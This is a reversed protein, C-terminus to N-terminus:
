GKKLLDEIVSNIFDKKFTLDIGFFAGLQNRIQKKTIKMLDATELILKIQAVIQEDSPGVVSGSIPYNVGSPTYSPPYYQNPIGSHVSPPATYQSRAESQAYGTQKTMSSENEWREQEYESWSKMPISNPDFPEEDIIQKRGGKEGVVIRTSGWSFDDFHWFAYVPIFFTFFPLALIYIVLWGIHEWKRKFIFILVQLGFGAAILILSIIPAYRNTSANYILYLLYGMTAPMVLTAFLDFFVVFRM